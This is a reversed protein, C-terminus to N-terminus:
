DRNFIDRTFVKDKVDDIDPSMRNTIIIQSSSKFEELNNIIECNLFSSEKIQPEFIIIKKDALILKSIIDIVAASRHNDSGKKMSLKYFGITDSNTRLITKVMFDKRTENSTVISSIINQPTRNFNSLLQKTDKPLCYGGYGFSPNNYGDGIREDLCVGDIINKSNLNNVISFSDLENFFSVRLALYSNSFLKIAEAEKSSMILTEVDRKIAASSLIDSFEKARPDDSGIIIRSPYLNDHLAKGERLFEPSFCISNTQFKDQLYETHGIPVTSKIIIFPKRSKYFIDNVVSDVSSTNFKNDDPDYDTPTAIIIFDANEYAEDKNLTATLSLDKSDLYEQILSDVITSKKSNIQKVRQADLDYVLVNNEQALVVSIAMGVYGSGVVTVNYKKKM